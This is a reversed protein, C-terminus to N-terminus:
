RAGIGHVLEGNRQLLALVTRRMLEQMEQLMLGEAQADSNRGLRSPTGTHEDCRCGGVWLIGAPRSMVCGCRSGCPPGPGEPAIGLGIGLSAALQWAAASIDGTCWIGGENTESTLLSM